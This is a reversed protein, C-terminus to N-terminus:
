ECFGFRAANKRLYEAAGRANAGPHMAQSNQLPDFHAETNTFRPPTPTAFNHVEPQGAPMAPRSNQCNHLADESSPADGASEFPTAGASREQETATSNRCNHLTEFSAADPTTPPTQPHNVRPAGPAREVEESAGREWVGIQPHGLSPFKTEWPPTTQPHASRPDVAARAEGQASEGSNHLHGTSRFEASPLSSASSESSPLTQSHAARTELAASAEGAVGAGPNHLNHLVGEFAAAEEQAAAGQAAAQRAAEAQAKREAEQERVWEKQAETEERIRRIEELNLAESRDSIKRAYDEPYLRELIWQTARMGRMNDAEAHQYMKELQYTRCQQRAQKLKQAVEPYRQKWRCLTSASM